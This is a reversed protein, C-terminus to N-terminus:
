KKSWLFIFAIYLIIYFAIFIAISTPLVLITEPLRLGFLKKVGYVILTLLISFVAAEVHAHSGAGM